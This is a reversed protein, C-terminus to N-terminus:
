GLWFIFFAIMRGTTIGIHEPIRNPIRDLSPWISKLMIYMCSSGIMTNISDM